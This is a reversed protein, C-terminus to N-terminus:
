AHHRGHHSLTSRRPSTPFTLSVRVPSLPEVGANEARIELVLGNGRRAVSLEVDGRESREIFLRHALESAAIGAQFVASESLGASRCLERTKAQVLCLHPAEAVHIMLSALSPPTARSM